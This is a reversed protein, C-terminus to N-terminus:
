DDRSLKESFAGLKGPVLCVWLGFDRIKFFSKMKPAYVTIHLEIQPNETNKSKKGNRQGGRPRRIRRFCTRHIEIVDESDWPVSGETSARLRNRTVVAAGGEEGEEANRCRLAQFFGGKEMQRVNGGGFRAEFIVLRLEGM